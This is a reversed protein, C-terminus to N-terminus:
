EVIVSLWYVVATGWKSRRHVKRDTLVRRLSLMLRKGSIPGDMLCLGSIPQIGSPSPSFVFFQLKMVPARTPFISPINAFYCAHIYNKNENTVFCATFHRSPLTLNYVQELHSNHAIGRVLSRCISADSWPSICWITKCTKICSYVGGGRGIGRGVCPTKVTKCLGWGWKRRHPLKM